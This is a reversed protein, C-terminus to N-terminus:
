KCWRSLRLSNTGGLHDLVILLVKKKPSIQTTQDKTIKHRKMKRKM